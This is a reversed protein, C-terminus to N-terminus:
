KKLYKPNTITKGHLSKNDIFQDLAAHRTWAYEKGDVFARATYGADLLAEDSRGFTLTVARGSQFRQTNYGKVGAQAKKAQEDHYSNM